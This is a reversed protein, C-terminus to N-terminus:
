KGYMKRVAPTYNGKGDEIVLPKKVAVGSRANKKGKVIVSDIDKSPTPQVPIIEKPEIKQERMASLLDVLREAKVIAYFIGGYKLLRAAASVIGALKIKVERRCIDIEGIDEGSGSYLMYPPNTVAVDFGGAGLLAGADNIDAHLIKVRGTLNNLMASRSAMDALREQIEIGVIEEATTKAALLFSIVGSGAGLECVRDGKYAKVSNALLVADTTFTYGRKDQIIQLGDCELDFLEEGEKLLEM